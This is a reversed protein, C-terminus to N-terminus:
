LCYYFAMRRHNHWLWFSSTARGAASRAPLVGSDSVTDDGVSIWKHPSHDCHTNNDGLVTRLLCVHSKSFVFSPRCATSSMQVQVSYYLTRVVSCLKVVLLFETPHKLFHPQTNWTPLLM